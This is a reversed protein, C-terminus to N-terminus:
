SGIEEKNWKWKEKEAFIVDRSVIVKKTIPDYLKYAKSEESVGLHVCKISKDDLKKRQADPVHAYAICGFVRFYKVLPKTDNWAEEPTVNKVALTHSRNLVYITWKVAEPWFQKPVRKESLMSRVMNMITRNKRKAVGNQQSTYTAILKRKIGNNRCFSNFECSNFEGGRDTRLCCISNGSDKEVMIKFKKFIDLTTSKESM